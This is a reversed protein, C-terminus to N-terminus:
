YNLLQFNNQNVYGWFALNDDANIDDHPDADIFGDEGWLARREGRTLNSSNLYEIVDSIEDGAELREWFYRLGNTTLLLSELPGPSVLVEKRWGFFAQNYDFGRIGFAWALDYYLVTLCGDLFVFDKRQFIAMGTELTIDYAEVDMNNPLDPYDM